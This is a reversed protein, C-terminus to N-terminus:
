RGFDKRKTEPRRGFLWFLVSMAFLLAAFPISLGTALWDEGVLPRLTGQFSTLTSESNAAWFAAVSAMAFPEGASVSAQWDFWLRAGAGIFFLFAILRAM